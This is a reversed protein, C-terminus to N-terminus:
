DKLPSTTTAEDDLAEKRDAETGICDVATEAVKNVVLGGIQHMAIDAGEVGKGVGAVYSLSPAM